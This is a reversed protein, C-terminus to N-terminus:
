GLIYTLAEQACMEPTNPPSTDIKLHPLEIPEFRNKVELYRAYSNVAGCYGEGFGRALRREIEDKPDNTPLCWVIWLNPSHKAILDRIDEQGIKRSFTATM